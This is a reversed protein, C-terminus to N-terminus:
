TRSCTVGTHTMEEAPLAQHHPGRARMKRLFSFHCFFASRGFFVFIGHLAVAIQQLGRIGEQLFSFHTKATADNSDWLQM